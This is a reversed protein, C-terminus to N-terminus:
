GPDDDNATFFWNAPKRTTARVPDIKSDSWEGTDLCHDLMRDCISFCEYRLNGTVQGCFQTCGPDKSLM